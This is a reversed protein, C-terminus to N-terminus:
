SLDNGTKGINKNFLNLCKLQGQVEESFFGQQEHSPTHVKKRICAFNTRIWLWLASGLVSVAPPRSNLKLKSILCSQAKGAMSLSFLGDNLSDSFGLRKLMCCESANFYLLHFWVFHTFRYFCLFNGGKSYHISTSAVASCNGSSSICYFIVLKLKFM